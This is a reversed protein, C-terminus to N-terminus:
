NFGETKCILRSAEYGEDGLKYLSYNKSYYFHKRIFYEM